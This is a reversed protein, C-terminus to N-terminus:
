NTSHLKVPIALPLIIVHIYRCGSFIRDYVECNKNDQLIYFNVWAGFKLGM